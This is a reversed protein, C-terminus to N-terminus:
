WAGGPCSVPCNADPVFNPCILDFVPNRSELVVGTAAKLSSEDSGFFTSETNLIPSGLSYNGRLAAWGKRGQHPEQIQSSSEASMATGLLLLSFTLAAFRVAKVTGKTLSLFMSLEHPLIVKIQL